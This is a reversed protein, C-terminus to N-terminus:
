YNRMRTNSNLEVLQNRVVKNEQGSVEELQCEM